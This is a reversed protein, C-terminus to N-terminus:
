KPNVTQYFPATRQGTNQDNSQHINLEVGGNSKELIADLREELKRIRERLKTNDARVGIYLMLSIIAVALSAMAVGMAVLYVFEPAM